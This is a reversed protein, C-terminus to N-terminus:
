PCAQLFFLCSHGTNSFKEFLEFIALDDTRRNNVYRQDPSRQLRSVQQCLCIEDAVGQDSKQDQCCHGSKRQRDQQAPKVLRGPTFSLARAVITQRM